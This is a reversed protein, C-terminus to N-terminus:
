PCVTGGAPAAAEPVGLAPPDPLAPQQLGQVQVALVVPRLSSFRKHVPQGVPVRKQVGGLGKPRLLGRPVAPQAINRRRNHQQQEHGPPGSPAAQQQLQQQREAERKQRPPLKHLPLRGHKRAHLALLAQAELAAKVAKARM